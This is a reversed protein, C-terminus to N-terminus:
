DKTLLIHVTKVMIVVYINNISFWTSNQLTESKKSLKNGRYNNFDENQKESLKGQIDLNDVFKGYSKLTGRQAIKKVM